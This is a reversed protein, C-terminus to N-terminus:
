INFLIKNDIVIIITYLKTLLHSLSDFGSRHEKYVDWYYCSYCSSSSYRRGRERERERGRERKKEREREKIQVLFYLVILNPSEGM